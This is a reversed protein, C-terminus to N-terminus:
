YDMCLSQFLLAAAQEPKSQAALWAIELRAAKQWRPKTTFLTLKELAYEIEGKEAHEFIYSPKLVARYFAQHARVARMVLPLGALLDDGCAVEVADALESAIEALDHIDVNSLNKLVPDSVTEV